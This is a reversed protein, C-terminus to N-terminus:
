TRIHSIGALRASGLIRPIGPEVDPAEDLHRLHLGAALEAPGMGIAFWDARMRCRPVHDCTLHESPRRSNETVEPVKSAKGLSLKQFIGTAIEIVTFATLALGGQVARGALKVAASDTLEGFRIATAILSSQCLEAVAIIADTPRSTLQGRM